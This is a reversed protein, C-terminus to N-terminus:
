FEFNNLRKFKTFYISTSFNNVDRVRVFANDGNFHIVLERCNIGTDYYFRNTEASYFYNEFEYGNYEDVIILDDPIDEYDIYNYEINNYGSQNSMNESPSCWRINNIRNDSRDRNIHDIQTKNLPDDNEIWQTGIIVHKYYKRGSM